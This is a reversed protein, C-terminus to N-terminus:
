DLLIELNDSRRKEIISQRALKLINETGLGMIIRLDNLQSSTMELNIGKYIISGNEDLYTNKENM